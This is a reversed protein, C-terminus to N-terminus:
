PRVGTELATRGIGTIAYRSDGTAVICDHRRLVGTTRFDVHKGVAARLQVVDMAGREQFAMLVKVQVLTLKV